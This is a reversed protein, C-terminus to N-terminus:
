VSHWLTTVVTENELKIYTIPVICRSGLKNSLCTAAYKCAIRIASTHPEVKSSYPVSEIRKEKCFHFAFNGDDCEEVHCFRYEDLKLTESLESNFRIYKDFVKVFKWETTYNKGNNIWM